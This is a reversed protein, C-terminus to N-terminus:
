NNKNRYLKVGITWQNFNEGIPFQRKWEVTAYGHASFILHSGEAVDIEFYGEQDTVVAAL